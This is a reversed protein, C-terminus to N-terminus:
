LKFCGCSKCFGNFLVSDCDPCIFLVEKNIEDEILTETQEEVFSEEQAEAGVVDNLNLDKNEM